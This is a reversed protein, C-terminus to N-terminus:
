HEVEGNMIKEFADEEEEEGDEAERYEDPYYAHYSQPIKTVKPVYVLRQFPSTRGEGFHKADKVNDFVVIFYSGNYCEGHPYNADCEEITSSHVFAQESGIWSAGRAAMRHFLCFFSEWAQFVKVLDEASIDEHYIVGVNDISLNELWEQLYGLRSDLKPMQSLSLQDARIPVRLGGQTIVTFLQLARPTSSCQWDVIGEGHDPTVVKRRGEFRTIQETATGFYRKAEVLKLEKQRENVDKNEEDGCIWWKNDSRRFEIKRHFRVVTISHGVHMSYFGSIWNLGDSSAGFNDWVYPLGDIEIDVPYRGLFSVWLTSLKGRAFNDKFDLQADTLIHGVEGIYKPAATALAQLTWIQWKVRHVYFSADDSTGKNFLGYDARTSHFAKALHDLINRYTQWEDESVFQPGQDQNNHPPHCNPCPGCQRFQENFPQTPQVSHLQPPTTSSNM